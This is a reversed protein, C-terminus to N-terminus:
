QTTFSEHPSLMPILNLKARLAIAYRQIDFHTIIQRIKRHKPINQDTLLYTM